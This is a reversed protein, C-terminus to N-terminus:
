RASRCLAVACGRSLVCVSVCVCVCVCLINTCGAAVGHNSVEQKAEVIAKDLMYPFEQVQRKLLNYDCTLTRLAPQLTLLNM